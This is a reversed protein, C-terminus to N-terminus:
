SRHFAKQFPDDTQSNKVHLPETLTREISWGNKLRDYIVWWEVGIEEAWQAITQTKGNFTLFRNNRRNNQQDKNKIWRCNSPEYNGNVEIRDLTLDDRYGTAMAWEYFAEFSDRWEPCVSIGRGGYNVYGKQNERSCRDRMSEWTRYLRSYSMGHKTKCKRASEDHFCGCSVTAGSRLHCGQVVKENGCDCKCLWYAAKKRSEDRRIVLLRGFRQGTLDIMPKAM